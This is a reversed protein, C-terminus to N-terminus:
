GEDEQLLEKARQLLAHLGTPKNLFHKPSLEPHERIHEQYHAHDGSIFLVRMKSDILHMKEYLDFGNMDPMKFDLIALDYVGVRFNKLAEDATNYTDVRFDAL